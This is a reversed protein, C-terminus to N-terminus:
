NELKFRALKLVIAIDKQSRVEFRVGTGEPYVPSDEIFQKMQAPLDSAKAATVAKKGLVFAVRFSKNLPGLYLITRKGQKLKLSWGAKASYSNWEMDHVGFEKDNLAAIIQDWLPKTEELATAVEQETPPRTKGIFANPALAPSSSKKKAAKMPLWAVAVDM